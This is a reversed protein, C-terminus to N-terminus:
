EETERPKPPAATPKRSNAAEFERRRREMEQLRRLASRAADREDAAAPPTTDAPPFFAGDGSPPTTEDAPAEKSDEGGVFFDAEGRYAMSLRASVRRREERSAEYPQQADPVRLTMRRGALSARRVARVEEEKEKARRGCCTRKPPEDEVDEDGRLMAALEADADLDGRDRLAPQTYLAADFRLSVESQVSHDRFRSEDLPLERSPKEYAERAFRGFAVVILPIPAVM